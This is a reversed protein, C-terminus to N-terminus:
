KYRKSPYRKANIFKYIVVENNYIRYIVLYPFKTLLIQQYNNHTKQFSFPKKEILDLTQEWGLILKHGLETQQKEYYLTAEHVEEYILGPIILTYKM